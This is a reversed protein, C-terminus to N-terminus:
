PHRCVRKGASTGFRNYCRLGRRNQGETPRIFGLSIRWMGDLSGFDESKPFGKAPPAFVAMISGEATRTKKAGPPVSRRFDM